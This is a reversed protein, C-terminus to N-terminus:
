VRPKKAQCCDRRDLYNGLIMLRGNRWNGPGRGDDDISEVAFDIWWVRTSLYLTEWFVSSADERKYSLKTGELLITEM